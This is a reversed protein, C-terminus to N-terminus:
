TKHCDLVFQLAYTRSNAVIEDVRVSECSYYCIRGKAYFGEGRKCLQEFVYTAGDIRFAKPISVKRGFDECGSSDDIYHPLYHNTISAVISYFSM